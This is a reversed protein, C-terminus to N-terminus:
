WWSLFAGGTGGGAGYPSNGHRALCMLSRARMALGQVVADAPQIEEILFEEVDRFERIRQVILVTIIIGGIPSAEHCSSLRYSRVVHRVLISIGLLDGFCARKM